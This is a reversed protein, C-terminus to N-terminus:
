IREGGARQRLFSSLAVVFKKDTAMELVDIRSDRMIEKIMAKQRLVNARYRNAAIDPDLIMQRGSSPDQVSFQYKLDPLEEDLRDRIMIALSEYRLGLLKLRSINEKRINIFDSVFIFVSYPSTVIPLIKNVLNEIDFGGGYMGPDGLLKTFLAFQNRTRAPRLVKVVDENFMVLGIKDGAELVLHALSAVLEATYEAKLRDGSGFLMSSSVDVLFYVNLEREEIYKRALLQNARLSAKWDILSADDDQQFERYSDFELGKGRFLNRYLIKKVPFKQMANEFEAIARPFNLAFKGKESVEAM